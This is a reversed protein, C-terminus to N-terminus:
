IPHREARKRTKSATAECKFKEAAASASLTVGAATLWCILAQLRINLHRQEPAVAPPDFDGFFADFQQRRHARAEVLELGGHVLDLLVAAGPRQLDAARRM